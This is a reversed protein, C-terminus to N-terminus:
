IGGVFRGPNLCGRPDFQEKVRRMLPLADGPDGWADLRATVGAPARAVFLSGGRAVAAARVELITEALTGADPAELRLWGVGVSQAVVEWRGASAADIDNLVAVLRAPLFTVKCVAGVVGSESGSGATGARGGTGLRERARWVDAGAEGPAAHAVEHSGPRDARSARNDGVNDHPGTTAPEPAHVRVGAANALVDLQREQADVAGASAGDLRM